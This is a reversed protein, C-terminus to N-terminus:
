VTQRAEAMFNFYTQLNSIAKCIPCSLILNGFDDTVCYYTVLSYEDCIVMQADAHRFTAAYVSLGAFVTNASLQIEYPAWIAPNLTFPALHLM